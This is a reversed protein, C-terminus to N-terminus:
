HEAAIHEISNLLRTSPAINLPTRPAILHRRTNAAPTNRAAVLRSPASTPRPAPVAARLANKFEATQMIENISKSRMEAPVANLKTAIGFNDVFALIHTGVDHLKTIYAKMPSDVHYNALFRTLEAIMRELETYKTAYTACLCNSSPRPGRCQSGSPDSMRVLQSHCLSSAFEYVSHYRSMRRTQTCRAANSGTCLKQVCVTECKSRLDLLESASTYMVDFMSELPITYIHPTDAGGSQKKRRTNRRNVM